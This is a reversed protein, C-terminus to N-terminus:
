SAKCITPLIQTSSLLPMTVNIYLSVEKMCVGFFCSQLFNSIFSSMEGFSSEDTTLIHKNSVYAFLFHFNLFEFEHM